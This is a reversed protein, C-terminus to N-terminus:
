LKHCPKLHTHITSPVMQVLKRQQLCAVAQGEWPCRPAPGWLCRRRWAERRAAVTEPLLAGQGAAPPVAPPGAGLSAVLLVVRGGLDSLGGLM